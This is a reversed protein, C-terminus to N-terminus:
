NSATCDFNTQHAPTTKGTHQRNRPRRGRLLKVRDNSKITADLDTVRNGEEKLRIEVIVNNISYTSVPKLACSDFHYMPLTPADGHRDSTLRPPEIPPDAKKSRLYRLLAFYLPKYDSDSMQRPRFNQEYM